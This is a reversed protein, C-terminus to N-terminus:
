QVVEEVKILLGSLPDYTSRKFNSLVFDSGDIATATGIEARIQRGDGDYVFREVKRWLPGSGDPDPSVTVVPRRMADYYMWTTDSAGPLPGDITAVDGLASYTMSTVSSRPDAASLTTPAWDGARNTIKIPRNREDYLTEVVREDASGACIQATSCTRTRILRTIGAASVEYEYSTQPRVTPYLGSGAAPEVVTLLAGSGPDYTFDTRNGMEDIRYKPQNCTFINLCDVDYGMAVQLAAGGGAPYRAINTLNHRLDYSYDIRLGSPYTIKKPRYKHYGFWDYKYVGGAADVISSIYSSSVGASSLYRYSTNYVVSGGLPDSAAISGVFERIYNPGTYNYIYSWESAGESISSM